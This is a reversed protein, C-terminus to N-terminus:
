GDPLLRVVDGATRKISAALVADARGHPLPETRLGQLDARLAAVTDRPWPRRTALLERV